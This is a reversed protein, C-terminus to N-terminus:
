VSSINVYKRGKIGVTQEQLSRHPPPPPAPVANSVSVASIVSPTRSPMQVIPITPASTKVPPPPTISVPSVPSVPPFLAVPIVPPHIEQAAAKASSMPKSKASVPPPATSAAVDRAGVPVKSGSRAFRPSELEFDDRLQESNTVRVTQSAIQWVHTAQKAQEVTEPSFFVTRPRRSIAEDEPLALGRNSVHLKIIDLLIRARATDFHHLPRELVLVEPNMILARAIHIKVKETYTLHRAWATADKAEVSSGKSSSRASDPEEEEDDDVDLNGSGECLKMGCDQMFDAGGELTAIKSPKRGNMAMELDEKVLEYTKDMQFSKLIEQIRIADTANLSQPNALGFTLNRWASLNLLMPERSIYLIRLYTPMFIIGETPFIAHGLLQLFTRKGSGHPGVVAVLSGQSVTTCVNKLLPPSDLYNFSLGVIKIPIMDSRYLVGSGLPMKLATQRASQTMTRRRKNLEKTAKLDTPLNLFNTFTNLGDFTSTVKMALDYLAAADSSVSQLVNITALLQGLSMEEDIVSQAQLYIFLATGIPGLWRPFYDNNLQIVKAPIGAVREHDTRSEFLETMQPRQAYDAIVRYKNCVEDVLSYVKASKDGVLGIAQVLIKNRLTAWVAMLGPMVICFIIAKQSEKVTFIFLVIIRGVVRLMELTTIYGHALSSSDQAIAMQMDAPRVQVRSAESYNLYKRFLSRMLWVRTEGVIDMRVKVLDAVHLLVMPVVYALAALKATSERDGPCWLREFSAEGHKFVTDVLYINISLTLFLYMNHFQDLCITLLTKNRMGPVEYVLKIYEWFLLWSNIKAIGSPGEELEETYRSSPFLDNDIIKVRCTYLYIGLKCNKPASLFVKFEMTASWLDDDVIEVHISKESEGDKFHVIGSASVYKVGAKASADATAYEVECSGSMSGLRMIDICVSKDREEVIYIQASFQVIDSPGAGNSGPLFEKSLSKSPKLPTDLSQAPWPAAKDWISDPPGFKRWEQLAQASANRVQAQGDSGVIPVYCARGSLASSAVRLMIGDSTGKGYVARRPSRSVM